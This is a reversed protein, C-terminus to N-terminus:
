LKIQNYRKHSNGNKCQCGRPHQVYIQCLRYKAVIQYWDNNKSTFKGIIEVKWISHGKKVAELSNKNSTDNWKQQFFKRIDVTSLIVTPWRVNELCIQVIDSWIVFSQVYHGVLIKSIMLVYCNCHGIFTIYIAKWISELRFNQCAM